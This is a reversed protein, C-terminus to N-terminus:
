GGIKVEFGFEKLKRRIEEMQRANPPEVDFLRYQRALRDLKGRYARNFPLIDIRRVGDLSAVFEGSRTINEINDNIGPIIPIRIIIESGSGALKRLNELILHNSVGTFREHAAPDVHKLDCLFLDVNPRIAAITEWPGHCTTDVAAHIAKRKCQRLLEALFEPQELPEGGSFTAGGGSEDYFIVDREIQAMISAVTARRGVIERAGTPCVDVCAGCLVCREVDITVRDDRRSIAGHDCTEACRGCGSCRSRRVSPEPGEHWSEPNHCWQCRLPCGKLFVTTRIGPGDHIAYKKVDFIVGSSGDANPPAPSLRERPLFNSETVHNM